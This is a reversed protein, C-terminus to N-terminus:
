GGLLKRAPVLIANQRDYMLMDMIFPLYVALMAIGLASKVPMSLFFVNLQPATRNVLGLGVTALFMVILIPSALVLTQEMLSDGMGLIVSPANSNPMLRSIFLPWISFSKYLAGLAVLFVGSAFFLVTVTQTFLIGTTSVQAGSLPSYVESMTSGRQNDILNGICEALYFPFNAFLGLMAGILVEKLAMFVLFFPNMGPTLQKFVMPAVIVSFSVIIARRCLGPIMSDSMPSLLLFFGTVRGMAIVISLIILTFTAFDFM